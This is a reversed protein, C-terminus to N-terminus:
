KKAARKSELTNTILKVCDIVGQKYDMGKGKEFGKAILEQIDKDINKVIDCGM